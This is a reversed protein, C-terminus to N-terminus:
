KNEEEQYILGYGFPYLYNLQEYNDLTHINGIDALTEPWTYSLKGTFNANGLLIDAVASGGESGPLFIAFFADFTSLEDTIILPRGSSLVGIVTKGDAKASVATQYAAQNGPHALGGFLTPTNTDGVGETYPLEAFVVIVTDAEDITDVLRGSHSSLLEELGDEISVGVGINADSTGQWHRTWGGNLLGVNNHAPGTLYIQENGTLPLSGDNELLVFSEIAAQKAIAQHTESYVISTDYRELPEEFLGKNFKVTLIRRVADNIRKESIAGNEVALLINEYATLWDTPEMLMDMGANVAKILQWYFDGELQHVANWDSLVIGEFGLEDKLVDTIWYQSGSVKQGNISSFTIMISDVGANIAHEYPALYHERIYAESKETNGQDIGDTTGGDGIFHKATAIVNESQLGEIYASVLNNHIVDDESFGEYTRGWSINEVVSVVPSFNWHIGVAKMERATAKGIEYMLDRNNAMGLNINHPFLTAGYVNNNGHVADIGYLIPIESSSQIAANQYAKVMNFWTDLDNNYATPFSGGGSLVSGINYQKVQEPTIYGREAQIMQGVKEEITLSNLFPEIDDLTNIELYTACDSGDCLSDIPDTDEVPQCSALLVILTMIPFLLRKM